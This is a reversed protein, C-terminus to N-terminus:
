GIVMLTGAAIALPGASKYFLPTSTALKLADASDAPQIRVM